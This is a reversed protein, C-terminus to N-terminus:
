VGIIPSFSFTSPFLKTDDHATPVPGHALGTAVTTPHHLAGAVIDITMITMDTMATMVASMTRTGGGGATTAAVVVVVVM